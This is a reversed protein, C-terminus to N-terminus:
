RFISIKRTTLIRDNEKISILYIGPVWEGTTIKLKSVEWESFNQYIIKGSIDRVEVQINEISELNSEIWIIDSAPNPYVTFVRKEIEEEPNVIRLEGGGSHGSFEVPFSLGEILGLLGRAFGRVESESEAIQVLTTKNNSTLQYHTGYELFEHNIEQTFKYWQEDITSTPLLNILSDVGNLDDEIVKIGIRLRDNVTSNEHSLFLFASDLDNHNVAKQLLWNLIKDKKVYLRTKEAQLITDNPSVTLSSDIGAILSYTNLLDSYTFPGEIPPDSCIFVDNTHSLSYNNIGGDSLNNLPKLCGPPNITNDYLYYFFEAEAPLAVIDPTGTTFCNNGKNHMRLSGKIGNSIGIFVDTTGTLFQNERFQLGGQQGGNNGLIGLGYDVNSFLTNCRVINNGLNTHQTVVAAHQNWFYNEDVLYKSHGEIWVGIESDYFDNNEIILGDGFVSSASILHVTNDNFYNSTTSKDGIKLLNVNNTTASSEIGVACGTFVNDDKFIAGYNIGFIGQHSFDVFQNGEFTIDHCRWITMGITKQFVDNENIFLCNTFSSKNPFTYRMFGFSSKNDRFTSNEAVVLGGRYGSWDWGDPHWRAIVLAGNMREIVSNNKIILVGADDQSLSALPNPQIKSDNGWVEIGRWTDGCGRSPTLTSNDIILRAGRKIKVDADSAMRLTANEVLLEGGPEIHLERVFKDESWVESGTISYVGYDELLLLAEYACPIGPVQAGPYYDQNNCVGSVDQETEKLLYMIDHYNLCPEEALLLAILGAIQPSSFSTGRSSGFEDPGSELVHVCHGQALFDVKDNNTHYLVDIHEHKWCDWTSEICKSSSVAGVSIVHDYSAPYAYGHGGGCNPGFNGNGASAVIIIGLDSLMTMLDQRNQNYTCGIWSNNIVRAGNLAAELIGNYGGNTYISLLMLSSNYGAGSLGFENDTNAAAAGAVQNGHHNNNVSTGQQVYKIKGSLDLHTTDFRADVIGIWIDPSGQTICWAERLCLMDHRDSNWQAELPDDPFCQPPDSQSSVLLEEDIFTEIRDLKGNSTNILLDRLSDVDGDVEVYYVRSLSEALPHDFSDALPFARELRKVNFNQFEEELSQGHTYVKENVLDTPTANSDM